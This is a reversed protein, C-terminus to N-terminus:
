PEIRFNATVRMRVESPECNLFTQSFEWQRVAELAAQLLAPHPSEVVGATQVVGDRGILAELVVVGSIGSARAVEPYVPNVNVLKRPPRINGGVASEECQPHAPGPRWETRRPAANSPASASAVITITEEIQGVRLELDREVNRGAVTVAGRLTEFGPRTAEFQYEGPPLGVFQFRGDPASKISYLAGTEANILTITISPVVRNTADFVSGSFTSFTQASLAAAGLSVAVIAAIVIARARATVPMRNTDSNLM